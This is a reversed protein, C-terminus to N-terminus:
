TLNDVTTKSLPQTQGSSKSQKYIPACTMSRIVSSPISGRVSQVLAGIRSLGPKRKSWVPVVEKIQSACVHDTELPLSCWNPYQSLPLELYPARVQGLVSMIAHVRSAYAATVTANRSGITLKAQGWHESLDRVQVPGYNRSSNSMM